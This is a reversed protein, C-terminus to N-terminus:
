KSSEQYHIIANVVDRVSYSKPSFDDSLLVDEIKVGLSDCITLIQKITYKHPQKYSDINGMQGPSIDLLKAFALQTVGKEERISKIRNIVKQQYETKM